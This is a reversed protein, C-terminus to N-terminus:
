QGRTTAISADSARYRRQQTHYSCSRNQTPEGSAPDPKEHDLRTRIMELRKGIETDDPADPDGDVAGEAEILHGRGQGVDAFAAGQSLHHHLDRGSGGSPTSRFRGLPGPRRSGSGPRASSGHPSQRKLQTSNTAIGRTIGGMRRQIPSPGRRLGSRGGSFGVGVSRGREVEDPHAGEMWELFDAFASGESLVVTEDFGIFRGDDVTITMSAALAPLGMTKRHIDELELTCEVVVAGQGGEVASCEPNTLSTQAAASWAISRTTEEYGSWTFPTDPPDTAVNFDGGEDVFFELSAEVDGDNFAALYRDVTTMAESEPDDRPDTM